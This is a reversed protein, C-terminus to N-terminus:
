PEERLTRLVRVLLFGGGVMLLLGLAIALVSGPSMTSSSTSATAAAPTTPTAPYWAGADTLDATTPPTTSPPLSAPTSVPTGAGEGGTTTTPTPAPATTSPPTTPSTTACTTPRRWSGDYTTFTNTRITMTTGPRATLKQSAGPPLRLLRDGTLFVADTTAQDSNAITSTFSGDCNNDFTVTPAPACQRTGGSYTAAPLLAAPANTGEYALATGRIAEVQAYCSPVTVKLSLTRKSATISGRDTSYVFPRANSAPAGATYSALAFTQTQGSCLPKTATVKVSGSPGDFAHSYTAAAASVCAQDTVPTAADAASPALAASSAALLFVFRRLVASGGLETM